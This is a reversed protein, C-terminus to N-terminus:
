EYGQVKELYHLGDFASEAVYDVALDASSAQKLAAGGALVKVDPMGAEQLCKKTERVKSIVITILGSIGVAFADEKKATEVLLELPCNKGCDVVRYGTATLIIKVINKGLDHVDGEISCLVVTGKTQHPPSGRPYLEDMVGMVARGCLMIELLNFQEATCKLDLQKMAAEVGDTIIRGHEVGQHVLLNASAVAQDRNGDLISRILKEM